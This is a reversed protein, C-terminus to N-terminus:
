EGGLVVLGNALKQGDRGDDGSGADTPAAPCPRVAWWPFGHGGMHQCAAEAAVEPAHVLELVPGVLPLVCVTSGPYWAPAAEGGGVPPRPLVKHGQSVEGDDSLLYYSM